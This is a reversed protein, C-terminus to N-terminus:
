HTEHEGLFLALYGMTLVSFILAQVLSTFVAFIMMPFQVPVIRLWHFVIFPSMGALIALITDEGFINGFLRVSLSVPKAIEGIIHLPLMIPFLWWPEGVFHKFYSWFGLARIAQVQVYIIALLALAITTSLNATPSRMFPVIGFVNLCFIYIFLTGIFPTHKRGSPGAVNEVLGNLGGVIIEILGQRRGPTKQLRRTGLWSLVTLGVIVIGSM